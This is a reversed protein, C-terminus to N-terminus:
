LSVSRTSMATPVVVSGRFSNMNMRPIGAALTVPCRTRTWPWRPRRPFSGVVFLLSFSLFRSRLTVGPTDPHVRLRRSDICAHDCNRGPSTASGDLEDDPHWVLRRSSSTAMTWLLGFWESMPRSGRGRSRRLPPRVIHSVCSCCSDICREVVSRSVHAYKLFNPLWPTLLPVSGLSPQDIVTEFKLRIIKLFNWFMLNGVFYTSYSGYWVTSQSSCDSWDPLIFRTEVKSSQDLLLGKNM